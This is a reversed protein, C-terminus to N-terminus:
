KIGITHTMSKTRNASLRFDFAYSYVNLSIFEYISIHALLVFINLDDFLNLRIFQFRYISNSIKVMCLFQLTQNKKCVIKNPEFMSEASSHFSHKRIKEAM